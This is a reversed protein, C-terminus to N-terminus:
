FIVKYRILEQLYINNLFQIIKKLHLLGSLIVPDALFEQISFVTVEDQLKILRKINKLVIKIPLLFGHLYKFRPYL